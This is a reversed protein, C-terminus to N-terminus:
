QSRLKEITIKDLEELLEIGGVFINGRGGTWKLIGKVNMSTKEDPIFIELNITTGINFYVRTHFKMGLGKRSVNFITCEECWDKKSDEPICRAKLQTNSRTQKRGVEM